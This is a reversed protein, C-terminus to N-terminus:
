EGRERRRERREWMQEATLGPSSVPINADPIYEYKPVFVEDCCIFKCDGYGKYEAELREVWADGEEETKFSRQIRSNSWGVVCTFLFWKEHGVLEIM